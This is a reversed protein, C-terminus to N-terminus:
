SIHLTGNELGDKLWKQLEPYNSIPLGITKHIPFLDKHKIWKQYFENGMGSQTIKSYFNDTDSGYYVNEPVNNM